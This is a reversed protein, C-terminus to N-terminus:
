SCPADQKAQQEIQMVARELSILPLLLCIKQQYDSTFLIAARGDPLASVGDITEVTVFSYGEPWDM